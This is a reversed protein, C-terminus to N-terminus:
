HLINKFLEKLSEKFANDKGLFNRIYEESRNAYFAFHDHNGNVITPKIKLYHGMEICEKKIFEPDDDGYIIIAPITKVKENLVDVNKISKWMTLIFNVDSKMDDEILM